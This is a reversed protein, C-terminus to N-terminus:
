PMIVIEHRCTKDPEHFPARIYLLDGVKVPEFNKEWEANWNQQALKRTTYTYSFDEFSLSDLDVNGAETDQIYGVFGTETNEFTEFGMDGLFSMLIESGPQVPKVVFTYEVYNM